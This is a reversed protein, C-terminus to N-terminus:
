RLLTAPSRRAGDQDIFDVVWGRWKLARVIQALVESDQVALHDGRLEPNSGSLAPSLLSIVGGGIDVKFDLILEGRQYRLLRRSKVTVTYGEDSQITSRRFLPVKFAMLNGDSPIGKKGETLSM